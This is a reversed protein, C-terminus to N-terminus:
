LLAAKWCDADLVSTRSTSQIDVDVGVCGCAFGSYQEVWSTDALLFSAPLATVTTDLLLSFTYLFADRACDDGRIGVIWTM